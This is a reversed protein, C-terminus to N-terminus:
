RGALLEDISGAHFLHVDIWPHPTVFVVYVALAAHIAFFIPLRARGLPQKESLGLVALAACSVAGLMLFAAVPQGPKISWSPQATVLEWLQLTLACFALALVPAASGEPVLARVRAPLSLKEQPVFTAVLGAALAIALLVYAIPPQRDRHLQIAEGLAAVFVIWLASRM